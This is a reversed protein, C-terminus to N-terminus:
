GRTSCMLFRFAFIWRVGKSLNGLSTQNQIEQERKAQEAARRKEEEVEKSSKFGFFAM